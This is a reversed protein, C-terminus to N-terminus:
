SSSNLEDSAERVGLQEKLKSLQTEQDALVCLLDESERRMEDQSALLSDREQLLEAVRTQLTALQVCLFDFASFSSAYPSMFFVLGGKGGSVAFSFNVQQCVSCEHWPCEQVFTRGRYM